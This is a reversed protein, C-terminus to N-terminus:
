IRNLSKGPQIPTIIFKLPNGTQLQEDESRVRLWKHPRGDILTFEGEERADMKLECDGEDPEVGVPQASPEALSDAMVGVVLRM